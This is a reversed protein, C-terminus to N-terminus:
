RINSIELLPVFVSVVIFAVVLGMGIIMIPELLSTMTEIRANVQEEYTEAV